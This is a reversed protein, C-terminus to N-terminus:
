QGIAPDRQQLKPLRVPRSLAAAAPWSASASWAIRCATTGHRQARERGLMRAPGAPSPELGFGAPQRHQQGQRHDDEDQGTHEQDNGTRGDDVHVPCHSSALDIGSGDWIAICRQGQFPPFVAPYNAAPGDPQREGNRRVIARRQVIETDCQIQLLLVPSCPRHVSALRGIRVRQVIM